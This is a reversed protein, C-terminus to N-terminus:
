FCTSLVTGDFRTGFDGARWWQVWYSHATMRLLRLIEASFAAVIAGTMWSRKACNGLGTSYQFRAIDSWKGQSLSRELGLWNWRCAAGRSAVAEAM